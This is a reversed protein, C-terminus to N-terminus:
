NCSSARVARPSLIKDAIVKVKQGTKLKGEAATICFIPSFIGSDRELFGLACKFSGAKKSGSGKGKKKPKFEHNEKVIVVETERGLYQRSNKLNLEEAKKFIPINMGGEEEIRMGHFATAPLAALRYCLMRVCGARDLKEMLQLTQNTREPTQNPLWNIFFTMPMLGLGRAKKTLEVNKEVPFPRGLETLQDQSGTECVLVIPSGPLYRAIMELIRDNLLSPKLEDISIFVSENVGKLAAISSLLEEIEGYNPEPWFPDTLPEDNLLEERKYDLLDPACLSIKSVGEDILGQIEKIITEKARSRPPGFIHPVCCYGCGPQIDVPCHMRKKLDDSECNGCEICKTGDALEIRPRNFNSCGRVCEVSVRAFKYFPYARVYKTDPIRNLEKKDLSARPGTYVVESDDKFAIGKVSKMLERDFGSNILEVITKEGEGVVSIDFESEKFYDNPDFAVPGGLIKVGEPNKDSAIKCISDITERSTTFGSVFILDFDKLIEPNEYVRRFWVLDCEVGSESIVTAILRPGVGIQLNFEKEGEIFADIVVAKM